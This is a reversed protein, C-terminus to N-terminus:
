FLELQQMTVPPKTTIGKFFLEIDAFQRDTITLLGIKGEKPLM